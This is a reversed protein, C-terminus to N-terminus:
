SYTIWLLTLQLRCDHCVGLYWAANSYFVVPFVYRYTCISPQRRPPSIEASNLISQQDPDPSLVIRHTTKRKGPLDVVMALLVKHNVKRKM